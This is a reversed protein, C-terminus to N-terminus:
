RLDCSSLRLTGGEEGREERLNAAAQLGSSTKDGDGEGTRQQPLPKVSAPLVVPGDPLVAVSFTEFVINVHHGFSLLEAWFICGQLFFLPLIM